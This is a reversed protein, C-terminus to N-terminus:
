EADPYYLCSTGFATAGVSVSWVFFHFNKESTEKKKLSQKMNFAYIFTWLWTQMYFVQIWASTLSCFMVSETDDDYPMIERFFAWLGSRFFIGLSAWLDSYACNIIIRRGMSRSSAEGDEQRIFIQYFSGIIGISSSIMSIVLYSERNFENM